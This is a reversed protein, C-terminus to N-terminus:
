SIGRFKENEFDKSVIKTHAYDADSIGEMNLHSYFDQKEPLSRENFKQWDDMYEYPHVGKQLLLMFKNDDQSSFKYTNFLLENLKEDFKHQYDKNCHLCKYEM